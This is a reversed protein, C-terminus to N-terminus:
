RCVSAPASLVEGDCRRPEQLLRPHRGYFHYSCRVCGRDGQLIDTVCCCVYRLRRKFVDVGFLESTEGLKEEADSVVSSSNKPVLDPHLYEKGVPKVVADLKPTLFFPISIRGNRSPVNLVRHTTSVVSCNLAIALTEAINVVFTGPIPEVDLWSGDEYLQVQLGAVGPEQVLLTLWGSDIHPGVGQDGNAAEPGLKDLEDLGPYYIVKCRHAPKDTDFFIDLAKEDPLGVARAIARTLSLGLQETKSMYDEVTKRFRFVDGDEESVDPWQNPGHMAWFEPLEGPSSHVTGSAPDVSLLAPQDIGFEIQERNDTLGKTNEGGLRTYGQYHPSNTLALAQKREDSLGFFARSTVFLDDILELPVDHNALYFFGYDRLAARLQLSFVDPDSRSLSWDLVPLRRKSPPPPPPPAPATPLAASPPVTQHPPPPPPQGLQASPSPSSSSSSPPM